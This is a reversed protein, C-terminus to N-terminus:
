RARQIGYLPFDHKHPKDSKCEDKQQSFDFVVFGNERFFGRFQSEANFWYENKTAQDWKGYFRTLSKIHGGNMYPTLYILNKRLSIVWKTPSRQLPLISGERTPDPKWESFDHDPFHAPFVARPDSSFLISHENRPLVWRTNLLTDTRFRLLLDKENPPFLEYATDLLLSLQAYELLSGSRDLLYTKWPLSLELGSLFDRGTEFDPCDERRAQKILIFSFHTKFEDMIEQCSYLTPADIGVFLHFSFESLNPSIMNQILSLMANRTFRPQGTFFIFLRRKM